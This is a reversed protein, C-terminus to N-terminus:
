LWLALARVVGRLLGCRSIIRAVRKFFLAPL